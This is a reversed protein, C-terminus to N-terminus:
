KLKITGWFERGRPLLRMRKRALIGERQLSTRGTFEKQRETTALYMGKERKEADKL